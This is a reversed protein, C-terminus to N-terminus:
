EKTKGMIVKYEEDSILILNGKGKCTSLDIEAVCKVKDYNLTLGGTLIVTGKGNEYNGDLKCEPRYLKVGIETGTAKFMIHVYDRDICNKLEKATKEPRACEVDQKKILREVLENFKKEM